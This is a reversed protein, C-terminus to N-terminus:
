PTGTWNRGACLLKNSSAKLSARSVGYSSTDALTRRASYKIAMLKCVPRSLSRSRLAYEGRVPPVRYSNDPRHAGVDRDPLSTSAMSVRFGSIAFSKAAFSARRRLRALNANGSFTRAATRRCSIAAGTNRARPLGTRTHVSSSRM